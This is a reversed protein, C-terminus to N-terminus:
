KQSPEPPDKVSMGHVYEDLDPLSEELSALAENVDDALVDGAPDFRIPQRQRSEFDRIFDLLESLCADTDPPAPASQFNPDRTSPGASSERQQKMSKWADSPFDESESWGSFGPYTMFPESWPSVGGSAGPATFHDDFPTMFYYAGRRACDEMWRRINREYQTPSLKTKILDSTIGCAARAVNNGRNTGGSAGSTGSDQAHTLVDERPEATGQSADEVASTSPTPPTEAKQKSPKSLEDSM